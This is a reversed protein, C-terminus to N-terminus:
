VARSGGKELSEAALDLLRRFVEAESCGWEISLREILRACTGSITVTLRRRDSVEGAFRGKGLPWPM